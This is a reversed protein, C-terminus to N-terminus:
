RMKLLLDRWGHQRELMLKALLWITWSPRNWGEKSYLKKFFLTIHEVIDERKELRQNSDVLVSIRNFRNRALALSHFFKTNEDGEKLWKCRSKQKWKVVQRSLKRLLLNKLTLRRDRDDADLVGAEEEIDFEQINQLESIVFEM